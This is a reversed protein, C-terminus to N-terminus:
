RRSSRARHRRLREAAAHDGRPHGRGAMRVPDRPPAGLRALVQDDGRRLPPRGRRGREARDRGPGLLLTLTETSSSRRAGRPHGDALRRDDAAADRRRWTASTTAAPPSPRSRAATARRPGCGSRDGAPQRRPPRVSGCSADDPPVVRGHQIFRPVCDTIEVGGGAADFLRTVLIATNPLYSQESRVCDLSSSRSSAASRRRPPTTSCRASRRTATSARSAAGSSPATRMSWCASPATASSRSTSIVRMMAAEPIRLPPPPWGAGRALPPGRRCRAPPLACADPRPGVKVAWDAQARRGGRLRVRRRADDGVFVPLRGAFPPERMFELIATGKDRGDPKCKSFARAPSCGCGSEAATAPSWRPACRGTSTRRSGRRRGTTCRWTAGKDELLLGEHRARSARRVARAAAGADAHSRGRAPAAYGDAARRECATSARRDPLACGRSCATPTPRDRARHDARGRRRAAAGAGAAARRRRRRRARRGADPRSRAAHRRHRPVARLRRRLAPPPGLRVGARCSPLPSDPM